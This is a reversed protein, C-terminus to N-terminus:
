HRAVRHLGRLHQVLYPVGREGAVLDPLQMVGELRELLGIGQRRPAIGRLGEVLGLNSLDEHLLPQPHAPHVLDLMAPIVQARVERALGDHYHPALVTLDAREGSGATMTAGAHHLTPTVRPEKATRKVAPGVIETAIEDRRRM